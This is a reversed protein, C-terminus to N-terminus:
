NLMSSISKDFQFEISKIADDDMDGIDKYKKDINIVTVLSGLKEILKDRMISGAEDNDAVLVVSNFYKELLKIQSASV